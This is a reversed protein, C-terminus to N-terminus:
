WDSRHESKGAWVNFGESRGFFKQSTFLILSCRHNPAWTSSYMGRGVIVSKIVMDYPTVSGARNGGGLFPNYVAPLQASALFILVSWIQLVSCVGAFYNNKRGEQRHEEIEKM